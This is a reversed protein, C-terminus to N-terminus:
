SFRDLSRSSIGWFVSSSSVVLRRECSFSFFEGRRPSFVVAKRLGLDKGLSPV